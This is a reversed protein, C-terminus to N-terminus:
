GWFIGTPDQDVELLLAEFDEAADIHEYDHWKTNRDPWQLTWLTASKNYRFKAVPSEIWRKPQRFFPRKEFLVVDNGRIRYQLVVKDRVAIPVREDCFADLTQMIQDQQESSLAMRRELVTYHAVKRGQVALRAAILAM